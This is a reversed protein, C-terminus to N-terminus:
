YGNSIQGQSIYFATSVDLQKTVTFILYFLRTNISLIETRTLICSVWRKEEPVIAPLVNAHDDCIWVANENKVRNSAKGVTLPNHDIFYPKCHLNHKKQVDTFIVPSGDVDDGGDGACIDAYFYEKRVWGPHKSRIKKFISIHTNLIYRLNEQKLSTYQSRGTFTSSM